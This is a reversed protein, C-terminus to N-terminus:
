NGPEDNHRTLNDEGNGNGISSGSPLKSKMEQIYAKQNGITISSAQIASQASSTSEFEIFSYCRNHMGSRTKVGNPKIPGFKRFARHLEEAKVGMALNGVFVSKGKDTDVHRGNKKWGLGPKRAPHAKFPANNENLTNVITLFSKKPAAAAATADKVEQVSESPAVIDAPLPDSNPEATSDVRKIYTKLPEEEDLFRLVDTLIFYGKPRNMPALVFSQIFKRKTNADNDMTMCGIVVVHVGLGISLQADISLLDCDKCNSYSSFHDAIAELTTCRNMVGNPGQRSLRSSGKYFKHVQEPFNCLHFYYSKVLAKAGEEPATNENLANVATLSAEKPPAAAAAATATATATADEVEKVTENPATIDAPLTKPTEEEDLFRLVDNLIFYAKPKNMPALVFSQIFKRKTNSDDDMCGVVLVHVGLGISLQADIGLVCGKCNFYSVVHDDIAELTTWQNMVEDPGRRCFMSSDRYFKHVDKRDNCLHFYYSKVLAKAVEEPTLVVM